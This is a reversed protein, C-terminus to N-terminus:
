KESNTLLNKLQIGVVHLHMPHKTHSQEAFWWSFASLEILFRRQGLFILTERYCSVLLVM